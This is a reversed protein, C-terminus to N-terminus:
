KEMVLREALAAPGALRRQITEWNERYATHIVLDYSVGKITLGGHEIGTRPLGCSDHFSVVSENDRVTNSYVQSLGLKDFGVHFILWVSAPAVPAHPLIVWRGWNGSHQDINYISILGVREGSLLEICFYYDNDREFYHELWAQHRSYDPDFEGIYRSLDPNSRLQYIFSADSMEVPRLRIGFKEVVIHQKM